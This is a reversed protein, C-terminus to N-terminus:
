GRTQRRIETEIEVLADPCYKSAVTALERCDADSCEVEYLGGPPDGSRTIVPAGALIDHVLSGPQTSDLM